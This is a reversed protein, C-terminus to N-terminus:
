GKPLGLGRQAIINRQIESTGGGVTSTTAWLYTSAPRGNMVAHPSDRLLQGHLGLLSLATAAIRQDLETSYLKAISAEKSPVMGRAQVGIVRYNLMQEVQAEITRDALEYRVLPDRAITCAPDDRHQRAYEVFARVTLGHSVGSAIGSREFNLTTTAIYWGRNEEGVLNDKAVRVNDFFVENFDQRGAMNPLPRVTIGPSKMDILFYSIGKHKPADPDTRALLIMWQTVQAGSTWIKQGNIVYDDGDRVARTQINALDSGAEPESFGQCWFLENKLLPPLHRRKQEETGYLILTPGVWGLGIVNPSRPAGVMAMEYNFIFQEMVTLGAGGYEKPWAPAIWGRDSLKKLWGGVAQWHEPRSLWGITVEFAAGGAERRTLTPPLERKIFERVEQRFAAEQPSDSFDM